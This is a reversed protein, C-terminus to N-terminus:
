RGSWGINKWSYLHLALHPYLHHPHFSWIQLQYHAGLKLTRLCPRPNATRARVALLHPGSSSLKQLQRQHSNPNPSRPSLNLNPDIKPRPKPHRMPKPLNLSNPSQYLHIRISILLETGGWTRQSCWNLLCMRAWRGRSNPSRRGESITNGSESENRAM